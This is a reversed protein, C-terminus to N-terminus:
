GKEKGSQLLKLDADVMMRVLARFGIKPKWGLAARAASADGCPVYRERERVFRPDKKVFKKWDLGLHSFAEEVFERVTHSEGTAIM